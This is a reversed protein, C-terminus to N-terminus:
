NELHKKLADLQDQLAKVQKELDRVTRTTDPLKVFAAEMKMRQRNPLAPAGVVFEGAPVDNMIGAKAGVIAGKGIRVHDRSGVQGALIANDEVVVSGSLGVQGCLICNRGVQVNHAVQVLNDIKTGAGIRTAGMTARDITVNAGIEVDDEIIVTGVQPV